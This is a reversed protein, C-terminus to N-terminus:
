QGNVPVETADSAYVQEPTTSTKVPKFAANCTFRIQGSPTLVDPWKDRTIFGSMMLSNNYDNIEDVSKAPINYVDARTSGESMVYVQEDTVLITKNKGSDSNDSVKIRGYKGGILYSLFVGSHTDRDSMMPYRKIYVIVNDSAAYVLKGKWSMLPNPRLVSNSDSGGGVYKKIKKKTDHYYALGGHGCDKYNELTFFRHDDIRYIVQPPVDFVYYKFDNGVGRAAMGGSMAGFAAGSTIICGSLSSCTFLLGIVGGIRLILKDM